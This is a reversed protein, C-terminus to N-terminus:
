PPNPRAQTMANLYDLVLRMVGPLQNDWPLPASLALWIFFLGTLIGFVIGPRKGKSTMAMGIVTGAPAAKTHRTNGGIRTLYVSWVGL